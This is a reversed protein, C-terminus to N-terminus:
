AIADDPHGDEPAVEFVLARNHQSAMLTMFKFVKLAQGIDESSNLCDILKEIM